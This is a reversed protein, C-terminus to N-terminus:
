FKNIIDQVTKNYRTPIYLMDMYESYLNDKLVTLWLEQLRENDEIYNKIYLKYARLAIAYKQMIINNKHELKGILFSLSEFVKKYDIKLM